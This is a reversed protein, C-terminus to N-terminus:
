WYGGQTYHQQISVIVLVLNQRVVAVLDLIWDVASQALDLAVHSGIM